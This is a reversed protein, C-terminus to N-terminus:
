VNGKLFHGILTSSIAFSPPLDPMADRHYWNAEEIEVGDPILEGGAYDAFFGLMLSHPFPWSQSEVYRVNKVDVGVEEKIERHVASEATEGAEIFGALTSFVGPKFRPSRALICRDGDVVLVIICPSIRPYQVLACSECHKALDVAHHKMQHGCRGCFRHENHWTVLQAARSLTVYEQEDRSVSLLGRLNAKELSISSGRKLIVLNILSGRMEGVPYVAEVDEKAFDSLSAHLYGGMKHLYMAGSSGVIYCEEVVAGQEKTM